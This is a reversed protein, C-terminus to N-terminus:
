LDVGMEQAAKELKNIIEPDDKSTEDYDRIQIGKLILKTRVTSAVTEDGDSKKQVIKDVMRKIKGTMTQVM